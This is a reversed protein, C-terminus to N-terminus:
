PFGLFDTRLGIELLEELLTTKGSPPSDKGPASTEGSNMILNRNQTHAIYIRGCRYLGSIIEGGM